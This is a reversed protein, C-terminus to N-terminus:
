EAYRYRLGSDIHLTIAANHAAPDIAIESKLWKFDFYGHESAFRQLNQKGKEYLPQNLVDNRHLPFNAALALFDPDDKGDGEIRIDITTVHITPGPDVQYQALWHDNDHHLSAQIRPDYYGFPQLAKGIEANARQHLRQLQLVTLNPDFRQQEISLYALVNSLLAGSIGKVEVTVQLAAQAHRPIFVSVAVLIAVACWLCFRSWVSLSPPYPPRPPVVTKGALFPTASTMM